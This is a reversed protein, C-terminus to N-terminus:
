FLNPNLIMDVETDRSIEEESIGILPAEVWFEEERHICMRDIRFAPLIGEKKGISQYPIYCISNAKEDKILEKISGKYVISVPAGSIPDRLGNGTDILGGLQCHREGLYLIVKCHYKNWRQVYALFKWIALVLYYGVIALFFFLSGVRMYPRFAELIGGLLFGGIYLMVLAKVFTRMTKIKLGARLMCTNVLTHFLLLKIIPYPIPIVLVACTLGSGALAGVCINGHTASCKLMRRVILLLIYDMMFNVLFLMDLYIEYYM